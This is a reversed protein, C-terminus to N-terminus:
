MEMGPVESRELGPSSPGQMPRFGDRPGRKVQGDPSPGGTLPRDHDTRDAARHSTGAPDVAASALGNNSFPSPGVVVECNVLDTRGHAEYRGPELHLHAEAAPGQYIPTGWPDSPRSIVVERDARAVFERIRVLDDADVLGVEVVDEERRLIEKAIQVALLDSYPAMSGIDASPPMATSAALVRLEVLNRQAIEGLWEPHLSPSPQGTGHREGLDALSSAIAHLASGLSVAVGPPGYLPGGAYSGLADIDTPEAGWSFRARPAGAEASEHGLYRVWLNLSGVAAHVENTRDHNM